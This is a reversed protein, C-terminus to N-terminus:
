LAWSLVALGLPSENIAPFENLAAKPNPPLFWFAPPTPLPFLGLQPSSPHVPIPNQPIPDQRGRCSCSVRMLENVRSWIRNMAASNRSQNTPKPKKEREIWENGPIELCLSVRLEWGSCDPPSKKFMQLVLFLWNEMENRLIKSSEIRTM